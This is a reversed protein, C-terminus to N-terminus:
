HAFSYNEFLACIALLYMFFHEVDKAIFSNLGFCWQSEMESWYSHIDDLFCVVVFALPLPPPFSDEYM